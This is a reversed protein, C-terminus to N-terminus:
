ASSISLPVHDDRGVLFLYHDGYGPTLYGEPTYQGLVALRPDDAM